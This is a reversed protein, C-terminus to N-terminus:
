QINGSNGSVANIWTGHSGGNYKWGWYPQDFATYGPFYQGVWDVRGPCNALLDCQYNVTGVNGHTPWAPSSSLTGNFTARYGGNMNGHVPQDTPTNILAGTPANGPGIQGPVAYFNGNYTVTACYANAGTTWVKIHRTYYDFAWYNGAEGSDADNEVKENVDVVPRGLKTGCASDSLQKDPNYVGHNQRNGRQWDDRDGHKDNALAKTSFASLLVLAFSFLSLALFIKKM